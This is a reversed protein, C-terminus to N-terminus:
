LATLVFLTISFTFVVFLLTFVILLIVKEDISVNSTKKGNSHMSHVTDNPEKAYVFVTLTSYKRLLLLNKLNYAVNLM